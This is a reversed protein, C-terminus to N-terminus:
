DSTLGRDIIVKDEQEIREKFLSFLVEDSTDRILDFTVYFADNLKHHQFELRRKEFNINALYRQKFAPYM